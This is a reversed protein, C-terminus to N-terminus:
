TQRTVASSPSMPAAVQAIKLVHVLVDGTIRVEDCNSVVPTSAGVQLFMTSARTTLEMTSNLCIM